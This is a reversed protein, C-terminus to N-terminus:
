VGPQQPKAAALRAKAAASAAARREPTWGNDTEAKAQRSAGGKLKDSRPLSVSGAQKHGLAATVAAAIMEPTIGVNKPMAAAVAAGIAEPTLHRGTLAAREAEKAMAEFHQQTPQRASGKGQEIPNGSADKQYDHGFVEKNVLEAAEEHTYGREPHLPHPKDMWDKINPM